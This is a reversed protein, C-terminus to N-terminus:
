FRKAVCLACVHWRQIEGQPTPCQCEPCLPLKHSRRKVANAWRVFADNTNTVKTTVKTTPQGGYALSTDESIRDSLNISEGLYSPHQTILAVEQKERSIPSIQWEATSFRIEDVPTVLKQNVQILLRQREFTLNQAWAASSTAVRLVSRQIAVPRTHLAITDGVIEHWCQLLNQLPPEQLVAKAKLISVIDNVSKLSM